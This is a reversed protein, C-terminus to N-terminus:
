IECYYGFDDDSNYKTKGSVQDEQLLNLLWFITLLHNQPVGSMTTLEEFATM